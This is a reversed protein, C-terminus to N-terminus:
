PLLRPLMLALSPLFVLAAMVVLDAAIFPMVGKFIKGVPVDPLLTRMVFVNLGIPPTILSIEIVVVVVIGFWILTEQPSLGFDLSAVIPYFVPVTLLMMSISELICGLVLYIGIMLLIVTIPDVALGVLWDALARPVDSVNIFNAFILAGILICFLAASTRASDDLISAITRWDIGGRRIHAHAFARAAEGAERDRWGGALWRFMPTIGKPAQPTLSGKLWGILFAGFAGIGAAETPSFFGLYIGGMVIVFLALMGSVGTLARVRMRWNLRDACPGAEPRFRTTVWIAAVFLALSVIGPVLGAAFLKAIDTDTMVGYLVLVVSPPILIGLTGGAAVSGAALSDDYHYARMSPMAVKTMTASTALSSGCVASFGGSAVITASALGGRTHGVWANAAKYLDASVGSQAIFNGMLIFLPLVAFDYHLLQGFAENGVVALAADWGRFWALGAVGVLGMGFAIPVELFLLVFLVAFGIGVEIM